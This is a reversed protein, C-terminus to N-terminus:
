RRRGEVSQVLDVFRAYHGQFAVTTRRSPGWRNRVISLDAEGPRVSDADVLDPRDIDLIVDATRAWALDIGDPRIVEARPLTLVVLLGEAVLSAIREPSAGAELDADDCVVAEPWDGFESTLASIRGPGSIRLPSGDVVHRAARLREDDTATLDDNWLHSVPVRAAGSMLRAAVLHEPERASVFETRVGHQTCLLLAWQLALTSRGQGPTGTIIWVQGPAFGGTVEDVEAFGTSRPAPRTARWEALANM